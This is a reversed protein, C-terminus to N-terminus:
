SYQSHTSNAQSQAVIWWLVLKHIPKCIGFQVVQVLLQYLQTQMAVLEM